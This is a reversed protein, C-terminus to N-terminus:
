RRYAAGAVRGDAIAEGANGPPCEMILIADNDMAPARRAQPWEAAGACDPGFRVQTEPCPVSLPPHGSVAGHRVKAKAIVLGGGAALDVREVGGAIARHGDGLRDADDVVAGADRGDPSGRAIGDGGDHDIGARAVANM